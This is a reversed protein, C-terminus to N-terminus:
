AQLADQIRTVSAPDSKLQEALPHVSQDLESVLRAITARTQPTSPLQATLRIAGVTAELNEAPSLPNGQSKGVECHYCRWIDGVSCYWEHRGCDSAGKPSIWSLWM